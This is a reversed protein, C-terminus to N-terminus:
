EVDGMTRSKQNHGSVFDLLFHSLVHNQHHSWVVLGLNTIFYFQWNLTNHSLRSLKVCTKFPQSLFLSFFFFFLFFFFFSFCNQINYPSFFELASHILLFNSQVGTELSM